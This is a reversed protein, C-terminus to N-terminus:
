LNNDLWRKIVEEPRAGIFESAIEGNKFLKVAPISRIAYLGSAKRNEEVNVKALVFKGNFEEALKELIPGLMKCPACWPAWFDVLVPVSKSREIVESEFNDDTIKVEESQESKKQMEELKKKRIEELEDSM